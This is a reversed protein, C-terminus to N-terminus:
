RKCSNSFKRFANALCDIIDTAIMSTEGNEKAALDGALGHIYVGLQAAEFAKFRQGILAAIIGSLVDGTGGSAMGPNGTTNTYMNDNNIVITGNGKLVLVVEKKENQGTVNIFEKAIKVRDNQVNATSGFNMLRALEGPHPTLVVSNQADNLLRLKGAIANLGDADLVIPLNVEHLLSIVLEKTEPHQSLGPGIVIVDYNKSFDLIKTKAAKALTGASTQALPLTMVCTLKTEMIANLSEPVGLTVLGAGARLAAKSCLYAAGTFGTSGAIVFVRGYDGKHSDPNRPTIQPLKTIERM